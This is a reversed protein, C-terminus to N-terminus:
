KFSVFLRSLVNCAIVAEAKLADPHRTGPREGAVPEFRLFANELTGQRHCDFEKKWRNLVPFGDVTNTTTFPLDVM